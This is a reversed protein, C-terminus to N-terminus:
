PTYRSRTAIVKHADRSASIAPRPLPITILIYTTAPARAMPGSSGNLTRQSSLRLCEVDGEVLQLVMAAPLRLSRRAFSALLAAEPLLCGRWGVVSISSSEIWLM